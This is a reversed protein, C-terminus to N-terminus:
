DRASRRHAVAIMMGLGALVMAIPKSEQLSVPLSMRKVEGVVPHSTVVAYASAVASALVVVTVLKVLFKSM